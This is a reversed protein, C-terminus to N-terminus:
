FMNNIHQQINCYKVLTGGFGKAPRIKYTYSIEEPEVLEFYLNDEIFLPRTVLKVSDDSVFLVYGCASSANGHTCPQPSVTLTYYYYNKNIYHLCLAIYCQETGSLNCSAIVNNNFFVSYKSRM